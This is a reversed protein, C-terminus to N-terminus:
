LTDFDLDTGLLDNFLTHLLRPQVPSGWGDMRCTAVVARALLEAHRPSM